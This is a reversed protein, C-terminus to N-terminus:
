VGWSTGGFPNGWGTTMKSPGVHAGKTKTEESSSVKNYLPAPQIGKKVEEEKPSETPTPIDKKEECLLVEEKITQSKHWEVGMSIIQKVNEILKPIEGTMITPVLIQVCKAVLQEETKM